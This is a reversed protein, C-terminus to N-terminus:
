ESVGPHGTRVCFVLSHAHTPPRSCLKQPCGAQQRPSWLGRTVESGPVSPADGFSGKSRPPWPHASVCALPAADCYAPCHSTPATQELSPAAPPAASAATPVQVLSMASHSWTNNWCPFTLKDFHMGGDCRSRGKVQRLHTVTEPKLGAPETPGEGAFAASGVPGSTYFIGTHVRLLVLTLPSFTFRIAQM